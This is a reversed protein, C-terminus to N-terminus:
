EAKFCIHVYDGFLKLPESLKPPELPWTQLTNVRRFYKKLVPERLAISTKFEEGHVDRRQIDLTEDIVEKSARSKLAYEAYATGLRLAGLRRQMENKYPDIYCDSIPALGGPKTAAAINAIALEQEDYAIHHLAGTCLVVDFAESPHWSLVNGEEFSIGPYKERGYSVYRPDIDVGLLSLDPRVKAIEGLLYGSGCMVDALRGGKRARGIVFNVVTELAATCPWHRLAEQYLEPRIEMEM